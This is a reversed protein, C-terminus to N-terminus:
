VDGGLYHDVTEIWMRQKLIEDHYAELQGAVDQLMQELDKFSKSVRSRALSVKDPRSLLWGIDREALLGSTAASELDAFSDALSTVGLIEECEQIPSVAKGRLDPREAAKLMGLLDHRLVSLPGRDENRILKWTRAVHQANLSRQTFYLNRSLGWYLLEVRLQAYLERPLELGLLLRKLNVHDNLRCLPDDADTLPDPDTLGEHSFWPGLYQILQQLGDAQAWVIVCRDASWHETSVQGALREQWGEERMHIVPADTATEPQDDGAPRAEGSDGADTIGLASEILQDFQDIERLQKVDPFVCLTGPASIREVDDGQIREGSCTEFRYGLAESDGVQRRLSQEAESTLVWVPPKRDSRSAARMFGSILKAGYKKDTVEQTDKGFIYLDTILLEPLRTQFHRRAAELTRTHIL